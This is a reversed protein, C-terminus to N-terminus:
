AERTEIIKAELLSVLQALSPLGVTLVETGIVFAPFVILAIAKAQASDAVEDRFVLNMQGVRAVAKEALLKATATSFCHSATFVELTLM